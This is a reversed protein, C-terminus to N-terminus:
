KIFTLSIKTNEFKMKNKINIILEAIDSLEAYKTPDKLDGDSSLQRWGDEDDVRSSINEKMGDFQKALDSEADFKGSAKLQQQEAKNDWTSGWKGYEDEGSYLADGAMRKKESM